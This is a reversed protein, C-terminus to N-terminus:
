KKEELKREAQSKIVYFPLAKLINEFSNDQKANIIIEHLVDSDLEIQKVNQASYYIGFNEIDNDFNRELLEPFIQDNNIKDSEVVFAKDILTPVILRYRHQFKQKQLTKSAWQFLNVCVIPKDSLLACTRLFCAAVRLGTLGGPGTGLAYYDLQTKSLGSDALMEDVIETIRAALNRNTDFIRSSYNSGNSVQIYTKNQSADIFLYRM